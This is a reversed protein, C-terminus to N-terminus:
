AHLISFSYDGGLERRSLAAREGTEAEFRDVFQALRDASFGHRNLGAAAIAVEMASPLGEVEVLTHMRPYQEFRLTAGLLTYQWIYREIEFVLYYGLRDLIDALVEPDGVTTSVEQRVKYGGEFTTPGKWDLYASKAARSEYIRLRLVHDREAMRGTVDDYRNDILRGEYEIKGGAQEVQLRAQDLDSVVSKLEVERM